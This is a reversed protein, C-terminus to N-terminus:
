HLCNAESRGRHEHFHGMLVDSIRALSHERYMIVIHLLSRVSLTAALIYRAVQLQKAMDPPLLSLAQIINFGEGADEDM